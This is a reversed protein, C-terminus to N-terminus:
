HITFVKPDSVNMLIFCGGFGERPLLWLSLQINVKLSIGRGESSRYRSESPQSLWIFPLFLRIEKSVKGTKCLGHLIFLYPFYKSLTIIYVHAATKSM